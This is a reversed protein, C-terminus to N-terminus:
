KLWTYEDSLKQWKNIAEEKAAKNGLATLCLQNDQDLLVVLNLHFVKLELPVTLNLIKNVVESVNKQCAFSENIIEREKLYNAVVEKVIKKYEDVNPLSVQNDSLSNDMPLVISNDKDTGRVIFFLCLIITLGIAILFAIKGPSRLLHGVDKETMRFHRHETPNNPINTKDMFNFILTKSILKKGFAM